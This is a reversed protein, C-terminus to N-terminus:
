AGGENKEQGAVQGDLFRVKYIADDSNYQWILAGDEADKFTHDAPGLLKEVEEQSAGEQVQGILGPVKSPVQEPTSDCGASCCALWTVMMVSVLWRGM